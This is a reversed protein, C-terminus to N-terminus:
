VLSLTTQATQTTGPTATIVHPSRWTSQSWLWLDSVPIFGSGSGSGPSGNPLSGLSSAPGGQALRPHALTDRLGSDLSLSQADHVFILGM